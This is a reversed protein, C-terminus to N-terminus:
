DWCKMMQSTGPRQEAKTYLEYIPRWVVQVELSVVVPPYAWEKDAVRKEDDGYAVIEWSAMNPRHFRMSEIGWGNPRHQLVLGMGGRAGGSSSPLVVSCIVDYVM